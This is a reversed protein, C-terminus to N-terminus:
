ATASSRARLRRDPFGNATIYGSISDKVIMIPKGSYKIDKKNGKDDKTYGYDLMVVPKGYGEKEKMKHPM